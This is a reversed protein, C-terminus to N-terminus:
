CVTQISTFVIFFISSGKFVQMLQDNVTIIKKMKVSTKRVVASCSLLSIYLFVKIVSCLIWFIQYPTCSMCCLFLCTYACAIFERPLRRVHPGMLALQLRTLNESSPRQHLLNQLRGMHHRMATEGHNLSARPEPPPQNRIFVIVFIILFIFIFKVIFLM